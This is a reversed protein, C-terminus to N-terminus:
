RNEEFFEELLTKLAKRLHQHMTPPTVDMAEAVEEGTSERPWDFFGSYYALRLTTLQRETLQDLVRNHREIATRVPHDVERRAVLEAHEYVRTLAEVIERVDANSPVEVVLVGVGDDVTGRQITAGHNALTRVGSEHLRVEITCREAEEHVLRCDEVSDHASAEALVTEGDLGDVTVYQFLHGDATSGAWELSCTCDYQTSLDFSFTGGGEIRFELELVSDSRLLQRNKVASISFGILEGLLRFASRENGIFATTRSARVCLVGYSTREHSIPVAIVADDGDDQVSDDQEHPTSDTEPIDTVVQIEGTAVARQAPQQEDSTHATTTELSPKGDGAQTRLSLPGESSGGAIWAGRYLTSEVLQECVTREIVDRTTAEILTEIVRRVVLNIRNLTELRDRQIRLDRERTAQETLDSAVPGSTSTADMVHDIVRDAAVESGDAPIYDTAGARLAATAARESGRQPAVITPVTPLDRCLRRVVSHIEVPQELELVIGRFGDIAPVAIREDMEATEAASRHISDLLHNPTVTRVDFPTAADIQTALESEGYAVVLVANGSRNVHEM